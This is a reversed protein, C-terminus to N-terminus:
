RYTQCPAEDLRFLMSLALRYGLYVSAPNITAAQDQDSHLISMWDSNIGSLTVAPISRNMFSTSDSNAVPVTMKELPLQLVEAMEQALGVMAESSLNGLTAPMGLGFSDLNIMACYQPLESQSIAAVMGRSGLLGVEENGFGVFIMTKETPFRSVSRYLHALAVIGTWNDIAGCGKNVFDYHAGVVIKEATAGPRTVIVNEAGEVKQISIEPAGAAGAQMRGFLAQVAARRQNSDCPVTALDAAVEQPTSLVRPEESDDQRAFVAGLPLLLIFLIFAPRKM